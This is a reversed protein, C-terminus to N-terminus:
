KLTMIYAVLDTMMQDSFSGFSAPMFSRKGFNGEALILYHPIFTKAGGAGILTTGKPTQRKLIGELVTGDTKLVYYAAYAGEVAADPDVIATLLHGVDRNASGDLPPGVKIGQDGVQHCALCSQFFAQGVTPNGELTQTAKLYTAVKEKKQTALQADHKKLYSAVKAAGKSKRDKRSLASQQDSNWASAPIKEQETFELLSACTQPNLSLRSVLLTHENPQLTELWPAILKAAQKPERVYLTAIADLRANFTAGPNLFSDRICM